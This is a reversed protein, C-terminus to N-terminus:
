PHHFPVGDSEGDEGPAMLLWEKRNFEPHDFDKKPAPMKRINISYEKPDKTSKTLYLEYNGFGGERNQTRQLEILYKNVHHMFEETKEQAMLRTLEVMPVAGELYIGAVSVMAKVIEKHIKESSYKNEHTLLRLGPLRKMFGGFNQDENLQTNQVTRQEPRSRRGGFRLGEPENQLLEQARQLHALARETM